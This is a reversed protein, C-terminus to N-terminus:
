LGLKYLMSKHIHPLTIVRLKDISNKKIYISYRDKLSIKQITCDLDFKKKLINQLRKLDEFTFSNASIRVGEGTWGGDDMIWVSLSISNMYKELDSPIIKKGNKYFSRFIWM